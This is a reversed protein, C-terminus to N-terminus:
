LCSFYQLSENLSDNFVYVNLTSTDCVAEFCKTLWIVLPVASWNTWLGHQQQTHFM